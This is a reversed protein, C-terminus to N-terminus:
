AHVCAADICDGIIGILRCCFFTQFPPFADSINEIVSVFYFFTKM